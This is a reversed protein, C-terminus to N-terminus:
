LLEPLRKIYEPHESIGNHGQNRLLILTDDADFNKQLEYSCNVPILTDNEGHFIIVPLNASKLYEDTTLKYRLLRSPLWSYYLQQMYAMNNFPAKLIIKSPNNQSAIYAALAAGISYGAIIVNKELYGTIVKKYVYNVDSLLQQESSIVGESKGYGRYDLVFCDYNNAVFPKAAEGWGDVSGANGHLYFVLGKSSDAKFLLGHVRTSDELTIYIEEHDIYNFSYDVPLKQPYFLIKEQNFYIFIVILLCGTIGIGLIWMANIKLENM